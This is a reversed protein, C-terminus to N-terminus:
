GLVLRDNQSFPAFNIKLSRVAAMPIKRRNVSTFHVFGIAELKGLTRTLNPQERGALEALEAM